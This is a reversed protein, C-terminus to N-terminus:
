HIRAGAIITPGSNLSIMLFTVGATYSKTCYDWNSTLVEGTMWIIYNTPAAHVTTHTHMGKPFLKLM